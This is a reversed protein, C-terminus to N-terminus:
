KPPPILQNSWRDRQITWGTPLTEPVGQVTYPGGSLLVNGLKTGALKAGNLNVGSLDLSGFDLNVFNAGGLNAGPGLLYGHFLLWGSPLSPKGKIGGSRVGTLIASSLDAGALNAGALNSGALNANSLRAGALNANALDAGASVRWGNVLQVGAALSVRATATTSWGLMNRCKMSIVFSSKNPLTLRVAFQDPAIQLCSSKSKSIPLRRSMYSCDLFKPQPSVSIRYWEVAQTGNSVPPSWTITAGTGDFVASVNTPPTPVTAEASASESSLLNPMIVSIVVLFIVPIRRM